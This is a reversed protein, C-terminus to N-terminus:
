ELAFGHNSSNVEGLGLATNQDDIDVLRNPMLAVLPHEDDPEKQEPVAPVAKQVVETEETVTMREVTQKVVEEGELAYVVIIEFDNAPMVGVAVLPNAIYGSVLPSDVTFIEGAYLRETYDAHADSGDNYRYHITLQYLNSNVLTTSNGSTTSSVAYYGNGVSQEYWVYNIPSGNENMPLNDVTLSWNNEENLTRGLIREGNAQLIVGLSSPRTRGANDKDDWVKTVSASTRNIMHTNTFTTVNGNEEREATYGDVNDETWYYSIINGDVYSPLEGITITWDNADSLRRSRISGDSGILSVGLSIPRIGDRNDDDFWVKEVTYAVRDYNITLSGPVYTVIYNGQINDARGQPDFVEVTYEGPEENDERTFDYDVTDGNLTGVVRATFEPDYQGYEKTFGEQVATAPNSDVTVTVPKPTVTLKGIIYDIIYSSTVDEDNENLIRVNREINNDSQGANTQSGTIHVSERNVHDDGALDRPIYSNVRLATGNYEATRSGTTLSMHKPHVILEGNVVTVNRYKQTVDVGDANEFRYDSLVNATPNGENAVTQSGEVKIYALHDGDELGAVSYCTADQCTLPEANYVKEARRGTIIVEDDVDWVTLTGPKTTVKYNARTEADNSFTWSSVTNDSTGVNLQEGEVVVDTLTDPIERSLSYFPVKCSSDNCSLPTGDFKKSATGAEITLDIPHLTLKGSKRTIDYNGTVDNEGNVIKVTGVKNEVDGEKGNVWLVNHITGSVEVTDFTDEYVLEADVAHNYGKASQDTGDYENDLSDAEITIPKPKITLFDHEYKVTYNGQETQGGATIAYTGVYRGEPASAKDRSLSYVIVSEDDGNKLGKVSATLKPDAQGYFIEKSEASVTVEAPTIKMTGPVFKVTYNGQEKEGAANIQYDGVNEGEVRIISNYKINAKDSDNICGEITDIVYNVETEPTGYVKTQNKVTVTVPKPKVTLSGPNYSITYLSTVPDGDANVIIAGSAKINKTEGVDTRQASLTLSKVSDGPRLGTVTYHDTNNGTMVLPQGNYVKELDAATITASYHTNTVNMGNYSAEYGTPEDVERVTYVIERGDRTYQPLDNFEYNTAGNELTVKRNEGELAVGDAYLQITITPRATEDKVSGSWTKTGEVSILELENTITTTTTNTETDKEGTAQSEVKYNPVPDETWTWTIPNNKNDVVPINSVSLTWTDSDTNSSDPSIWRRLTKYTTKNNNIKGTLTVGVNDPRLGLQNHNDNWEKKLTVTQKSEAWQAYLITVPSNLTIDAGNQYSTGSGDAQTNWGTFTWNGDERTPILNKINNKSGDAGVKVTTGPFEQLGTPMNGASGDFNGDYVLSALNKKLVVGDVHWLNRGEGNGQWKLVYWLVYETKPDFDGDESMISQIDSISPVNGGVAATVENVIYYREEPKDGPNLKTVSPDNDAVWQRANVTGNIIVNGVDIGRYTTYLSAAYNSPEYPISGDLRIGFKVNDKVATDLLDWAAYFTINAGANLPIRYTDGVAYIKHYKGDKLNSSDTWGKFQMDKKTGDYSPFTIESGPQQIYQPLQAASGGNVNFSVTVQGEWVAYFTKNVSPFVVDKNPEYMSTGDTWGIFGRSRYNDLLKTTFTEPSRGIVADPMTVDNIGRAEFTVTSGWVAYLTHDEAGITYTGILPTQDKKTEAWADMFTKTGLDAKYSDLNVTSYPTLNTAKNSPSINGGGNNDFTLTVNYIAYYKFAIPEGNEELPEGAHYLTDGQEYLPKGAEDTKTTWGIFDNGNKKGFYAPFVAEASGLVVSELPLQNPKGGNVDFAVDYAWVATLTKNEQGIEYQGDKDYFEGESDKWGLLEFNEGRSASVESAFIIFEGTDKTISAPSVSGGNNDFTIAANFVEYLTIDNAPVTFVGQIYTNGGEANKYMWKDAVPHGEGYKLDISGPYDVEVVRQTANVPFFTVKTVKQWKAYLTKDGDLTLEIPDGAKYVVADDRLPNETWGILRYGDRTFEPYTEPFNESGNIYPWAAEGNFPDFWLIYNDDYVAYFTTNENGVTFNTGARKLESVGSIYPNDKTWGLFRHSNKTGSYEPLTITDGSYASITQPAISNGDRVNFTVSKSDVTGSYFGFTNKTASGQFGWDISNSKLNLWHNGTESGLSWGPNQNKVLVRAPTDSLHVAFSEYGGVKGLSNDTIQLYRGDSSMVYYFCQDDSKCSGTFEFTWVPYNGTFDGNSGKKTDTDVVALWSERASAAESKTTESPVTLVAVEHNQANSARTVLVGTKVEMFDKDTNTITQKATVSLNSYVSTSSTLNTGTDDIVWNWVKGEEADPLAPLLSGFAAGSEISLAKRANPSIFTVLCPNDYGSIPTRSTYEQAAVVMHMPSMGLLVVCLLMAIVITIVTNKKM